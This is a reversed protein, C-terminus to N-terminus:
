KKIVFSTVSAIKKGAASTFEYVDCFAYTDKNDMIFEGHVAGSKGHTIFGQITYELMTNNNMSILFNKIKEKGEIKQGGIMDM